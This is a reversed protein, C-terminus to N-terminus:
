FAPQKRSLSPSLSLVPLLVSPRFPYRAKFLCASYQISLVEVAFIYKNGLDGGLCIIKDHPLDVMLPMFVMNPFSSHWPLAGHCHMRCLHDNLVKQHELWNEDQFLLICDLLNNQKSLRNMTNLRVM